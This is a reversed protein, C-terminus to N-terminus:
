VDTADFEKIYERLLEQTTKKSGMDMRASLFENIDIIQLLLFNIITKLLIVKRQLVLLRKLVNNSINTIIMVLTLCTVAFGTIEVIKPNM